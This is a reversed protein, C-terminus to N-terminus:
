LNICFVVDIMGTTTNPYLPSDGAWNSIGLNVGQYDANVSDIQNQALAELCARDAEDGEPFHVAVPIYLTTMQFSARARVAQQIVRFRRQNSNYVKLRSPDKKLTEMYSEMGCSRGQANLTSFFSFFFFFSLIFIKLVTYNLM